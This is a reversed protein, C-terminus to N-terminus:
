RQELLLPRLFGLVPRAVRIRSLWEEIGAACARSVLRRHGILARIPMGGTKQLIGAVLDAATM